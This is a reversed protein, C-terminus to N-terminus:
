EIQSFELYDEMQVPANQRWDPLFPKIEQDFNM